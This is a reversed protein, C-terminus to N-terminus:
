NATRVTHRPKRRQRPDWREETYRPTDAEGFFFMEREELLAEVECETALEDVVDECSQNECKALIQQVNEDIFNLKQLPFVFIGGDEDAMM